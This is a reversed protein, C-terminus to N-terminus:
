KKGRPRSSRRDPEPAAFEWDPVLRAKEVNGLAFEIAELEEQKAAAKRLGAVSRRAGGSVGAPIVGDPILAVRVRSEEADGVLGLLRGRFRRKGDMPEYLQVKVLAGTFRLFDRATRLPRDMGPSSVELRDYDIEEVAFLHSLHRSVRECDDVTIRLTSAAEAGPTGDVPARDITVRLLGGGARVVDVLEYGLGEVTRALLEARDPALAGLREWASAEPISEAQSETQVETERLSFFIPRQSGM